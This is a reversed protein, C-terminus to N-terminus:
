GPREAHARPPGGTVRAGNSGRVAIVSGNGRYGRVVATGIEVASTADVLALIAGGFGGGLLRAGYAGEQAALGVLEDLEPTSVEYDDRLSAHSASMLQGAVRLDNASLASVFHMVRANETMVHRLRRESLRDLNALDSATLETSSKTGVRAMAPALERRRDAYGSEELNRPMGSDVVLLAVDHPLAVHRYALTACNLLVAINESGLVCAAQDLIGCPVGVARLEARQCAHALTMPELDFGAVACFALATAVELAASSSLGV